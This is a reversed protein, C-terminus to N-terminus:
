PGVKGELRDLFAPDLPDLQRGALREAAPWIGGLHDVIASRGTRSTLTFRSQWEGLRLGYLGLVANAVEARHQRDARRSLPTAGASDSWHEGVGFVGCLGCM